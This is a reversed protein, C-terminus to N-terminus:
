LAGQAQYGVRVFATLEHRYTPTARAVVSAAVQLGTGTRYRLGVNLFPWLAGRQGATDAAVLEGSAHARLSNTVRREVALYVANYGAEFGGRRRLMLLVDGEDTDGLRLKSRLGLRYGRRGGDGGRGGGDQWQVSADGGVSLRPFWQYDGGAGLESNATDSIVSFLSTAPLLRAAVRREAHVAATVRSGAYSAEARGTALGVLMLDFAGVARLWLSPLLQVSLDAGVEENAVAGDTRQQVYSLGVGVRDRLFRQGARAGLIWDYGDFLGDAVPVGAFAELSSGFPTNGRLRLGDVHVPRIAGTAILLRGVRASARGSPHRLGVNITLVDGTVGDPRDQLGQGIWVDAEADVLSDNRYGGYLTVLGAQPRAFGLVSASGVM